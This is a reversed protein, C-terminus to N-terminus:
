RSLVERYLREVASTMRGATFKEGAAARAAAALRGATDPDSALRKLASALKEPQSPEVLLGSVDHEIAEPIGGVRTAVVPLGCAMAELLALPMAEQHSPFAFIDLAALFTGIDGVQGHLTVRFPLGRARAKIDAELSGEGALAVVIGPLGSQGAAELLDEVGKKAELAGAYGVVPSGDPPIGLRGRAEGRTPLNEFPPVGNPIVDLLKEPVGFEDHLFRADSACLAIVAELSHSAVGKATRSYFRRLPYYTPAHETTVIHAAGGALAAFLAPLAEVPSSLHLHFVEPAEGAVLGRLGAFGKVDTKGWVTLRTVEAGRAQCARAAGDAGEEPSLIVHVRHGAEILGGTLIEVHTLLGGPRGAGAYHMVRM